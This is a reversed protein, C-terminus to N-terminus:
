CPEIVQFVYDGQTDSVEPSERAESVKIGADAGPDFWGYVGGFGKALSAGWMLWRVGRGNGFQGGSLGGAPQASVRADTGAVDM